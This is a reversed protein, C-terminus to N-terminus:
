HAHIGRSYEFVWGVLAIVGLVAGLGFIWWGLALGMFAVAAAGALVIPWWSWPSFFGYEGAAQAIEGEPDDQPRPDISKSLKRLYFGVMLVLGMTLFICTVGVMEKWDTMFGYVIGVAAFFPALFNFLNSEIKM